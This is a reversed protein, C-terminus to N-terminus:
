KNSMKKKTILLIAAVAMLIGGVVYFITTGIGGTSPLSGGKNNAITINATVTNVNGTGNKGDATVSINMLADAPDKATDWGQGNTTAATIEVTILDKLLNYNEPAKTEKLQYKGADLGIVKFIGNKDSVLM